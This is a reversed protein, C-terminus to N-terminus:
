RESPKQRVFCQPSLHCFACARESRALIRDQRHGVAKNTEVPCHQPSAGALKTLPGGGTRGGPSTATRWYSTRSRPGVVDAKHSKYRAPSQRSAADVTLYSGHSVHIIVRCGREPRPPYIPAGIKKTAGDEDSLVDRGCARQATPFAKLWGDITQSSQSRIYLLLRNSFVLLGPVSIM